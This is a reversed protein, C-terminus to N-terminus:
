QDCMWLAAVEVVFQKNAVLRNLTDSGNKRLKKVTVINANCEEGETKARQSAVHEINDATRSWTNQCM